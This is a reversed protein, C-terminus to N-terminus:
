ARWAALFLAFVDSREEANREGIADLANNKGVVFLIFVAIRQGGLDNQDQQAGIVFQVFYLCALEFFELSRKAKGGFLFDTRVEVAGVPERPGTPM